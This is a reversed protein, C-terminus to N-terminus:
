RVVHRQSAFSAELRGFLDDLTAGFQQFEDDTGGLALRQHLNRTLPVVVRARARWTCALVHRAADVLPNQLTSTLSLGTPNRM